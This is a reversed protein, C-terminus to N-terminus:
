TDCIIGPVDGRSQAIAPKQERIPVVNILNDIAAPVSSDLASIYDLKEISDM